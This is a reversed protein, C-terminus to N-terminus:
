MLDTVIIIYLKNLDPHIYIGHMKVFYEFIEKDSSLEAMIEVENKVEKVFEEYTM